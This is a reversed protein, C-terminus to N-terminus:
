AVELILAQQRRLPRAAAVPQEGVVVDLPQLRYESELAVLEEREPHNALLQLHGPCLTRPPARVANTLLLLLDLERLEAVPTGHRRFEHALELLVSQQRRPELAALLEVALTLGVDRRRAGANCAEADVRPM